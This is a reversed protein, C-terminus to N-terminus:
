DMSCAMWSVQILCHKKWFQTRNFKSFQCFKQEFSRFSYVKERCYIGFWKLFLFFSGTLPLLSSVFSFLIGFDFSTWEASCRFRILRDWKRCKHMNLYDSNQTTIPRFVEQQPKFAIQWHLRYQISYNDGGGRLRPFHGGLCILSRRWNDIQIQERDFM